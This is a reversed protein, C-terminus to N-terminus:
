CVNRHKAMSIPAHNMEPRWHTSLKPQYLRYNPQAYEVDPHARLSDLLVLLRQGAQAPALTAMVTPPIRYIYERPPMPRDLVEVGLANLRAVPLPGPIRMRVIVQGPVFAPGRQLTQELLRRVQQPTLEQAQLARFETAGLALILFPLLNRMARETLPYVNFLTVAPAKSTQFPPFRTVLASEQTITGTM